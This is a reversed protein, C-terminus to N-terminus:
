GRPQLPRTDVEYAVCEQLRITSIVRQIAGSSQYGISAGGGNNSNGGFGLGGGTSVTVVASTEIVKHGLLQYIDPTIQVKRYPVDAPILYQDTGAEFEQVSLARNNIANVSKHVVQQQPGCEQSAYRSVGAAPTVIPTPAVNVPRINLYRSNNSADLTTVNAYDGGKFQVNGGTADSRSDSASTSTSSMCSGVDGCNSLDNQNGATEYVTAGQAAQNNGQTFGQQHGYNEVRQGQHSYQGHANASSMAALAALTAFAITAKM